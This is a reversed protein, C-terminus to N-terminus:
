NFYSIVSNNVKSGVENCYTIFEDFYAKWLDNGDNKHYYALALSLYRSENTWDYLYSIFSYVQFMTQPYEDLDESYIEEYIVSATTVDGVYLSYFAYAFRYNLYQYKSSRLLANRNILDKIKSASRLCTEIRESTEATMFEMYMESYIIEFKLLARNVATKRLYILHLIEFYRKLNLSYRELTNEDKLHKANYAIYNNEIITTSIFIEQAAEVIESCVKDKEKSSAVDYLIDNGEVLKYNFSLTVGVLTSLSKNLRRAIKKSEVGNNSRFIRLSYFLTKNLINTMVKYDADSLEKKAAPVIISDYMLEYYEDGIENAVEESCHLIFNYSYENWFTGIDVKKKIRKFQSKTVVGIHINDKFEKNLREIFLEKSQNLERDKKDVVLLIGNLGSQNIPVKYFLSYWVGSLLAGLAGTLSYFLTLMWGTTEGALFSMGKLIAFTFGILIGLSIVLGIISDSQNLFLYKDFFLKKSREM